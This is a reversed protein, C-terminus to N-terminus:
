TWALIKAPRCHRWLFASVPSFFLLGPPRPASQGLNAWRGCLNALIRVILSYEYESFKMVNPNPGSLSLVAHLCLPSVIIIIVGHMGGFGFWFWRAGGRGRGQEQRLKM